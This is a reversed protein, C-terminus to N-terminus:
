MLSGGMMIVLFFFSVVFTDVLLRTSLPYKEESTHPVMRQQSIEEPQFFPM